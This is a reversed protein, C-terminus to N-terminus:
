RLKTGITKKIIHKFGGWDENKIIKEMEEIQKKSAVDYFKVLEQFGVNGPYAAETILYDKLKM